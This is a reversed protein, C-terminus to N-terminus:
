AVLRGRKLRADQSGQRLRHVLDKDRRIAAMELEDVFQCEELHKLTTAVIWNSLPRHDGAALERFERYVPDDLRLTVTKPM